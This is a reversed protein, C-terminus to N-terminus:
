LSLLRDPRLITQCVEKVKAIVAQMVPQEKIFYCSCVGAKTFRQCTRCVFFLREEGATNPRNM